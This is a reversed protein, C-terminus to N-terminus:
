DVSIDYAVNVASLRTPSQSADYIINDVIERESNEIKDEFKNRFKFSKIVEYNSTGITEYIAPAEDAITYTDEGQNDQDSNEEADPDVKSRKIMIGLLVIVLILLAASLPITTSYLIRNRSTNTRSSIETTTSTTPLTKNKGPIPFGTEISKGSIGGYNESCDLYSYIFHVNQQKIEAVAWLNATFLISYTPEKWAKVSCHKYEKSDSLSQCKQNDSLRFILCNKKRPQCMNMGNILLNASCQNEDTTLKLNFIHIFILHEKSPPHMDWKCQLPYPDKQRDYKVEWSTFGRLNREKAPECNSNPSATLSTCYGYTAFNTMLFAVLLVDLATCRQLLQASMIIKITRFLFSAETFIAKSRFYCWLFKRHGANRNVTM